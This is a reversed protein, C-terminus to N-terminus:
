KASSGGGQVESVGRSGTGEPQGKRVDGGSEELKRAADSVRARKVSGDDHGESGEEGRAPISDASRKQGVAAEAEVMAKTVQLAPVAHVASRRTIEVRRRREAPKSEPDPEDLARKKENEVRKKENPDNADAYDNEAKKSALVVAEAVHGTGKECGNMNKVDSAKRLVTRFAVRPTEGNGVESEQDNTAVGNENRGTQGGDKESGVANQNLASGSGEGSVKVGPNAAIRGLDVANSKIESGHKTAADNKNTATGKPIAGSSAVTSKAEVATLLLANAQAKPNSAVAHDDRTEREVANSTGPEAQLSASATISGVVVKAKGNPTSSDKSVTPTKSASGGGEKVGASATSTSKRDVSASPVILREEHSKLLEPHVVTQSSKEGAPLDTTSVISESSSGLSKKTQENYKALIRKQVSSCAGTATASPSAMRQVADSSPGSISQDGFLSSRPPEQVKSPLNESEHEAVPRTPAEHTGKEPSSSGVGSNTSGTQRVEVRHPTTTWPACREKTVDASTANMNGASGDSRGTSVAAKFRIKPPPGQKDVNEGTGIQIQEKSKDVSHQISSHSGSTPVKAAVVPQETVAEKEKTPTPEGVSTNRVNPLVDSTPITDGNAESQTDVKQEGPALQPNPGSSLTSPKMAIEAKKVVVAPIGGRQLIGGGLAAAEAAVAAAAAEAEANSGSHDGTNDSDNTPNRGGSGSGSGSGSLDNTSSSGNVSSAAGIQGRQDHHTFNKGSSSSTPGGLRRMAHLHIGASSAGPINGHMAAAAGVTNGGSEMAPLRIECRRKAEERELRKQFKQAHTRVQKANRTGVFESIQNYNKQGCTNVAALFREHEEPTWYRSQKRDGDNSGTPQPTQPAAPPQPPPPPSPASGPPVIGMLSAVALHDPPAYIFPYQATLAGSVQPNGATAATAMAAAMAHNHVPLPQSQSVVTGTKPMASGVTSPPHMGKQAATATAASVPHGPTVVCLASPHLFPPQASFQEVKARKKEVMRELQSIREANHVVVADLVEKRVSLVAAGSSSSSPKVDTEVPVSSPSASQKDQVTVTVPEVKQDVM